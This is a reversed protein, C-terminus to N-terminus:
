VQKIKKLPLCLGCGVHNLYYGEQPFWNEQWECWPKGISDELVYVSGAPVAYRGRGLKGGASFRYPVAKDTLIQKVQPFDSKQPWRLSLRNSGWIAPTILAFTDEIEQKLLKYIKWDTQIEKNEIEVIHNEGGFKYWGKDLPHSSLYILCTGEKMQVANELFLGDESVVSREGDQMRPHLISTYKWPAKQASKNKFISSSENKWDSIPFWYYDDPEINKKDPDRDWVLGRDTEKLFWDDYGKQSIIRTRPIPVYIKQIDKSEAWFPGAVYLNERLEKQHQEPEQKFKDEQKSKDQHKTKNTSFFLGALTAAEPPFKNGSRGVLNEPSLFAGSSGYMLGLPKVVILYQFKCM